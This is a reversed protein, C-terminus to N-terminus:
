SNGIGIPFTILAPAHLHFDLERCPDFPTAVSTTRYAFQVSNSWKNRNDVRGDTTSRM